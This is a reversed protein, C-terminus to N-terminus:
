SLEGPPALGYDKMKRSLTPRSIGLIASARRKNWGVSKLVKRIHRKEVAALSQDTEDDELTTDGFTPTLILDDSSLVDGKCVAVSRKIVARLERINGPWSYQTLINMAEPTVKRVEKEFKANCEELFKYVLLPIDERRDRLPPVVICLENLRYYLDERFKREEVLSLLPRNSATIVRVDSHLTQEGGIREFEKYEVVRLIKAQAYPSMSDIEDLFITGGNALEFRGRRMKDAGTFAGKEHGFLESELLTETLASCNVSVYPADKRPSENHIAQSLLNKGTGSEGLILVTLESEAAVRAIEICRQMESNETLIDNFSVRGLSYRQTISDPVKAEKM